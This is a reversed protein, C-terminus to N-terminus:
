MMKSIVKGADEERRKEKREGGNNLGTVKLKRNCTAVFVNSLTAGSVCATPFTNFRTKTIPNEM